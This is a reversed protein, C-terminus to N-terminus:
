KRIDKTFDPVNMNPNTKRLEYVWREVDRENVTPPYTLSQLTIQIQETRKNVVEVASDVGQQRLEIKELRDTASKIQSTIEEQRKQAAEGILGFHDLMLYVILVYTALNPNGLITGLIGKPEKETTPQMGIFEGRDLVPCDLPHNGPTDLSKKNEDSM